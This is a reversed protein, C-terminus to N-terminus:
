ILFKGIQDIFEPLVLIIIAVVLKELRAIRDELKETSSM